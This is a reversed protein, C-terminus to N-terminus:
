KEEFMPARATMILKGAEEESLIEISELDDVSQDALDDITIIGRCALEFAIDNNMGEMELLAKSPKADLNLNESEPNIALKLLYDRAKNRLDEIIEENLNKIEAMEKPPAYAIEDISSFGEAALVNAVEENIGLYKIFKESIIKTEAESKEEVQRETMVNLDWGTLQSALKVNQGGRGIAQSLKDEEVAIDMSKTDEDVVISLVTAPSMANIVFQAPNEDWLIIDIREGALENSVSQVRSGRMGVCAGVPDLRPDNSKVAIKARIGSDRAASLIEILEQGVEPVELNFLHILFEPATRSLFLQPGKSETHVDRLYARIRDGNRIVERPIVEDKEIFAETNNGLDVLIGNHEVRKVIGMVLQGVKDKYADVIRAREAERVKQVIVQKATHAAIRGFDVSEIEEEIYDGVEIETYQKTAYSELIQQDPSMFEPDDDSLVTWRRFTIYDGTTRDISVRVDIDKAYKKRTATALASEIADFIIEKDVGKENSVADVVSLVDKNM